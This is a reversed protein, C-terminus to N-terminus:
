SRASCPTVRAGPYRSRVRRCRGVVPHRRRSENIPKRDDKPRRETQATDSAPDTETPTWSRHHHRVQTERGPIPKRHRGQRHRARGIPHRSCRYRDQTRSSCKSGRRPAEGTVTVTDEPNHEKPVFGMVVRAPIGSNRLILGLTAAYQEANGVLETAGAFQLLRGAGHGAPVLPQGSSSDSYYGESLYDALIQSTDLGDVEEVLGSGLRTVPGPIGEIPELNNEAFQADDSLDSLSPPIAVM